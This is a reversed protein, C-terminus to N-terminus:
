NRPGHHNQVLVFKDKITAQIGSAKSVEEWDWTLHTANAVFLHGYGYNFDSFAVATKPGLQHSTNERCGPSGVVITVMYKPDTYQDVPQKDTKGSHHPLFRQYSFFFFFFNALFCFMM